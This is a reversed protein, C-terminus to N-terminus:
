TQPRSDELDFNVSLEDIEADTLKPFLARLLAKVDPSADVDVEGADDVAGRLSCGGISFSLACWGLCAAGLSTRLWSM